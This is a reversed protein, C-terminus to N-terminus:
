GSSVMMSGAPLKLLLTAKMVPPPVPRPRAMVVVSDWSPAWHTMVLLDAKEAEM